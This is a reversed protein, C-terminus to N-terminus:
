VKKSTFVPLVAILVYGAWYSWVSLLQWGTFPITFVLDLVLGIVVWGVSYCLVGGVSRRELKTGAWAAALAAALAVVPGAWVADGVKLVVLVMAAFYAIIWVLAGYGFLKKYNM